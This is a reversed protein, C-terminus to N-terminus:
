LLLPHPGQRSHRLLLLLHRDLDHLEIPFISDLNKCASRNQQSQMRIRERAMEFTVPESKTILMHSRDWGRLSLLLGSLGSEWPVVHLCAVVPQNGYKIMHAHQHMVQERDRICKDFATFSPLKLLCTSTKKLYARASRGGSVPLAHSQHLAVHHKACFYSYKLQYVYVWTRKWFVVSLQPTSPPIWRILLNTGHELHELLRLSCKQDVAKSGQLPATNVLWEDDFCSFRWTHGFGRSAHIRTHTNKHTRAHKAACGSNPTTSRSFVVNLM